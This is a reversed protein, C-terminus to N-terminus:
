KKLKPDLADRLGDGFLNLSLIMVSLIVAPIFLRYPYTKLGSLAESCMSGLSTLPASVGVGLFSLFSELFIASPIQLFTTTVIQGICNPLLHKSIIRGGKAGLARAATVYEQQKLQLSQGRIIRSMTVWYLLGFAIFMSILNPGLLTVMSQLIGDGSNQFQELAPKLTASLLLIILMEPISYIIEVIRQMVTDVMGGCYGSVSGYLAGIVLVLLAACVGVIISVRTGVMVRVMIDRGQDDTGFVHPFVKEGEAKKQLEKNSYGFMSHKIGLAKVADAETVAEENDSVEQQSVNAKARIKAEDVRSLTVGKAEAEKRAQEVAEDPSLNGAGSHEEMYANIKEQDELSYHWPHLAESGRIQQKYTYPVVAPGVFAFVALLIIIVLAVMAVTNKRLRRWADKWYSVSRRDQIFNEKEESTAPEFADAPLDNWQLIDDINPQLSGPKHFRKKDSM